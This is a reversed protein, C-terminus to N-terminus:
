ESFTVKRTLVKLLVETDLGQLASNEDVKGKIRIEIQLQDVHEGLLRAWTEAKLPIGTARHCKRDRRLGVFLYM